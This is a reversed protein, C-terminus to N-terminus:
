LNRMIKDYDTVDSYGSVQKPQVSEFDEKSKIVSDSSMEFYEMKVKDENKALAKRSALLIANKIEGGSLEYNSLTEFNLKDVPLNPPILKEWILKRAQKTPFPLEIKAIIRRQLAGDLKHLRNTTLIVVGDFNEILGLLHNIEASLISGVSNRNYLLSDCEDFLVVANEKKAKEFSETMNREAQGPISSQISANDVKMLNMDLVAAISESVMSKGTGPPGYLLISNTIGKEFHESLGWKDFDDRRLVVTLAEEILEKVENPLICNEFTKLWRVRKKDDELKLIKKIYDTIKMGAKYQILKKKKKEKGLSMFLSRDKRVNYGYGDRCLGECAHGESFKKDFEVVVFGNKFEKITGTMGKKASSYSGILIIREGVVFKVPKLDELNKINDDTDATFGMDNLMRRQFDSLERTM